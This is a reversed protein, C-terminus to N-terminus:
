KCPKEHKCVAADKPAIMIVQLGEILSPSLERMLLVVNPEEETHYDKEKQFVNDNLKALYEIFINWFKVMYFHLMLETWPDFSHTTAETLATATAKIPATTACAATAAPTFGM